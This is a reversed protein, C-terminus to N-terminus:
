PPWFYQRAHRRSYRPQIPSSFVPTACITMERDLLSDSQDSEADTVAGAMPLDPWGSPLCRPWEADIPPKNTVPRSYSWGPQERACPILFNKNRGLSAHLRGAQFGHQQMSTWAALLAHPNILHNHIARSASPAVNDSLRLRFIRIIQYDPTKAARSFTREDAVRHTSLM